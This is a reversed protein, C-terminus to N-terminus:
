MQNLLKYNVFNSHKLQWYALAWAIVIDDHLGEPASYRMLGTPSQDYEMSEMEGIILPNKPARTKGQEIGVSLNEILRQKSPQTLKYPWVLVGAAVLDDFIPDGIGTADLLTPTAFGAATTIRAKQLPWSIERFRDFITMDGQDDLGIIVTFDVHKALDTGIAVTTRTSLAPMSCAERVKRFVSGENELFEALIEQRYSREPMDAGLKDIETRDIFSNQYSPGGFSQVGSDELDKGRLHMRYFWNRGKPTGLLLSDAKYDMLAPLLSEQWVREPIVGCEDVVLSGLGEAVLREPNDASKFEIRAPGLELFDPAGETGHKGTLWGPPVIRLAKRWIPRTLLYTPAVWWHIRQLGRIADDRAKKLQWMVGIESKGWRRGAVVVKTRAGSEWVRFQESHMSWKVTSM